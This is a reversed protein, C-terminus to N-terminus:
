AETIDLDYSSFEFYGCHETFVAVSNRSENAVFFAYRFNATSGDPFKINVVSGVKFDGAGLGRDRIEEPSRGLKISLENAWDNVIQKSCAIM